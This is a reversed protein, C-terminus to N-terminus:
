ICEKDHNTYRTCTIWKVVNENGRRIIGVGDNANLVIQFERLWMPEICRTPGANLRHWAVSKCQAMTRSTTAGTNFRNDASRPLDPMVIAAGIFVLAKIEYCYVLLSSLSQPSDDKGTSQAAWLVGLIWLHTGLEVAYNPWAPYFYVFMPRDHLAWCVLSTSATNCWLKVRQLRFEGNDDEDVVLRSNSDCNEDQLPHLHNLIPPPPNFFITM